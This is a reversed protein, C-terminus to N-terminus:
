FLGFSLKGRPLTYASPLDFLGTDGGYTPTAPHVEYEKGQTTVIGTRSEERPIAPGDDPADAGQPRANTGSLMFLGAAM